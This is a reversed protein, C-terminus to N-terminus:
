IFDYEPNSLGRPKDSRRYSRLAFSALFTRSRGSIYECIIVGVFMDTSARPLPRTTGLALAWCAVPAAGEEACAGLRARGAEADPEVVAATAKCGCCAALLLLLSQRQAPKTVAFLLGTSSSGAELSVPPM